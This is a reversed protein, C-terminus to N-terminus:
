PSNNKNHRHIWGWYGLLKSTHHCSVLAPLPPYISIIVSRCYKFIVARRRVWRNIKIVLDPELFLFFWNPCQIELDQHPGWALFTACRHVLAYRYSFTVAKQQGPHLKGSRPTINFLRNDQVKMHHLETTSFEGTEAWYELEIQQDEPFLFSWEVPISGTNEFMLLVSSPDSGLPAASFNFDLM